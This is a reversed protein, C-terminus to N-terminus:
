ISSFLVTSLQVFDPTGTLNVGNGIKGYEPGVVANYLVDPDNGDDFTLSFNATRGM